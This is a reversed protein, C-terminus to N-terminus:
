RYNVEDLKAANFVIERSVIGLTRDRVLIERKSCWVKYRVAKKVARSPNLRFSVLSEFFGLLRKRM